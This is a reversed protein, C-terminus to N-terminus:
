LGTVQPYQSHSSVPGFWDTCHDEHAPQSWLEALHGCVEVRSDSSGSVVLLDVLM